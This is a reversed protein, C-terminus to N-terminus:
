SPARGRSDRRSRRRLALKVSAHQPHRAEMLLLPHLSKANSEPRPTRPAVRSGTTRSVRLPFPASRGRSFFFVLNDQCVPAQVKNTKLEHKPPSATGASPGAPAAQGSRNPRRPLFPSSLLPWSVRKKSPSSTFWQFTRFRVFSDLSIWPFGLRKGQNKKTKRPKGQNPKSSDPPLGAGVIEVRERRSSIPRPGCATARM